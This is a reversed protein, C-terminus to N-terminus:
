RMSYNAAKTPNNLVADPCRFDNGGWDAIFANALAKSYGHKGGESPVRASFHCALIGMEHSAVVGSEQFKFRFDQRNYRRSNFRTTVARVHALAENDHYIRLIEPDDNKIWHKSKDGEDRDHERLTTWNSVPSTDFAYTAGICKTVCEAMYAMQQAIGGGLSHGTFHIRAKPYTQALWKVVPLIQERALRYEKPDISFAASLNTKWDYFWQIKTNETGRIAIVAVDVGAGPQPEHVYTQYYLGDAAECPKLGNSEPMPSWGNAKLADYFQKAAGALTQYDCAHSFENRKSIDEIDHRYVLKSFMAMLAFDNIQEQAQPGDVIAPARDIMVEGPQLERREVGKGAVYTSVIGCGALMFSLLAILGVRTPRKWVKDM